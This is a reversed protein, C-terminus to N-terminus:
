NQAKTKIYLQKVSSLLFPLFSIGGIGEQQSNFVYATAPSTFYLAITTDLVGDVPHDYLFYM